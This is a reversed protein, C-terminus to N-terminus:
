RPPWILTWSPMFRRASVPRSVARGRGRDGRRGFNHMMRACGTSTFDTWDEIVGPDPCWFCQDGIADWDFRARDITKEGMRVMTARSRSLQRWHRSRRARSAAPPSGPPPERASSGRLTRRLRPATRRSLRPDRIEAIPSTPMAPAFPERRDRRLGRSRQDPTSPDDAPDANRHDHGRVRGVPNGVADPENRQTTMKNQGPRRKDLWHQIMPATLPVGPPCGDVTAGLAARPKEGWTTVRFLHGYTNLSM